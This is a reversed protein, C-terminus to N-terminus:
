RRIWRTWSSEKKPSKQNSTRDRIIPRNLNQIEEQTLKPLKHTQLFKDM